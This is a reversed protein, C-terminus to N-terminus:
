QAGMGPAWSICFVYALTLSLQRRRSCAIFIVCVCACSCAYLLVVPLTGKPKSWTDLEWNGSHKAVLVALAEVLEETLLFITSSDLDIDVRVSGLFLTGHYENGHLRIM